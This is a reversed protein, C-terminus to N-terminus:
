QVALQNEPTKDSQPFGFITRYKQRLIRTVADDIRTMPIQKRIVAQYLYKYAKKQKNKGWAIIIMDSGAKVSKTVIQELSFRSSLAKMKIDDTIVIGKYGLDNRLIPIIKESLSAPYFSDISPVMLHGVMIAGLKDTQNKFPLFERKMMQQYNKTQVPLRFHSDVRTDGLNPFHKGTAIIRNKQMAEIFDSTLYTVNDPNGSFSRSFIYSSRDSTTDLVPALNMNVGIVKLEIGVREAITKVLRKARKQSTLLINGFTRAPFKLPIYNSIKKLRNVPGGEQDISILPTVRNSVISLRRLEKSLNKVQHHSKLNYGFLIFNGFHHDKIHKKFSPTLSKGPLDIMFMQGIKQKLTMRKLISQAWQDEQSALSQHGSLALYSAAMM